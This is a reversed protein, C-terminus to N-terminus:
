RDGLIDLLQGLRDGLAPAAEVDQDEVGRHEALRDGTSCRSGLSSSRTKLSLTKALWASIAAKSGSRRRASFASTM